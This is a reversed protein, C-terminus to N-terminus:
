NRGRKALLLVGGLGVALLITSIGLGGLAKTVTQVGQGVSTQVDGIRSTFSPAAEKATAQRNLADLQAKVSNYQQQLMAAAQTQGTKKALAISYALDHLAQQLKSIDAYVDGLADNHDSAMTPYAGLVITQSNRTTVPQAM